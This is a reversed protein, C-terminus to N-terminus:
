TTAAARARRRRPEVERFRRWLTYGYWLGLFVGMLVAAAVAAGGASGSVKRTVVYFDCSVGLGLVLMASLIAMSAFRHFKETEEGQEVIRHYAAPMMLIITALATLALGIFHMVKSAAPLQEFTEMFVGLLEFGLLAQAGPLVVRAETLVHKIKDSLETKAMDPEGGGSRGPKVIAIGYWSGAAVLAAAVGAGIGFGNGYMRQGVLFLALGIAAAFPALALEMVQMTFRHLRESDNGREVLRHFAAPMLLLGFTLLILVISGLALWRSADPLRDFSREMTLRYEFGIFMQTGITLIRAEDLANQIKTRLEAM